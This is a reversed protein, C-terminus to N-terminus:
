EVEVKIIARMLGKDGEPVVFGQYISETLLSEWTPTFKILDKILLEFQDIDIGYKDFLMIEIEREGGENVITDYQDWLLMISVIILILGFIIALIDLIVLQMSNSWKSINKYLTYYFFLIDSYFSEIFGYCLFLIFSKKNYLGICNNVWPCHHDQELICKHCVTCHHANIPRIVFCNICRTTKMHYKEEIIKKMSDNISTLPEFNYDDKESMNDYDEEENEKSKNEEKYKEPEGLIINKVVVPTRRETIYVARKILPENTFYCFEIIEKNNKM